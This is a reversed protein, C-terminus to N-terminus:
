SAIVVTFRELNSSATVFASSDLKCSAKLAMSYELNYSAIVM